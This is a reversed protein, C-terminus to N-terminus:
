CEYDKADNSRKVEEPVSPQKIVWEHDRDPIFCMSESFHRKEDNFSIHHVLWGGIVKVRGAHKDLEEWAWPMHKLM